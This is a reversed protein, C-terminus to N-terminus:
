YTGKEINTTTLSFTKSNTPITEKVFYQNLIKVDELIYGHIEPNSPMVYNDLLEVFSVKSGDPGATNSPITTVSGAKAQVKGGAKQWSKPLHALVPDPLVPTGSDDFVVEKMFHTAKAQSLVKEQYDMEFRFTRTKTPVFVDEFLDEILYTEPFEANKVYDKWWAESSEMEKFQSSSGKVHSSVVGDKWLWPIRSPMDEFSPYLFYATYGDQGRSIRALNYVAENM